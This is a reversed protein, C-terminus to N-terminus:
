RIADAEPQMLVVGPVAQGARIELSTVPVLGEVGMAQLFPKQDSIVSYLCRKTRFHMPIACRPKVADLIAKAGAADVTYHGGVPILMVDAGTIASLAEADPMCGQDGMHVVKLGDINFIRIANDGRLVGKAEDHYSAVARATVGGVSAPTLGRAILPQGVIQETFSHDHHEHSMTVLEAKLPLMAIGVGPDYPDTIVRTGDQATLRFCSHGIWEIKM